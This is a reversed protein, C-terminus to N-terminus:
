FIQSLFCFAFLLFGVKMSNIAVRKSVKLVQRRSQQEISLM